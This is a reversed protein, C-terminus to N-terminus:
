KGKKNFKGAARARQGLEVFHRVIAPNTHADNEELLRRVAPQSKVLRQADALKSAADNGYTETLWKHSEAQWGARVEPAAASLTRYVDVLQKAEGTNAGIDGFVSRLEGAAAKADVGEVGAFVDDPVAAAYTVQDPYLKRLPDAEREAFVADFAARNAEDEQADTMPPAPEAPAPESKPAYLAAHREEISLPRDPQAAPVPAPAAPVPAAQEGAPAAPYLRDAIASTDYM